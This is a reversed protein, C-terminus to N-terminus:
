AEAESEEDILDYEIVVGSEKLSMVFEDERGDAIQFEWIESGFPIFDDDEDMEEEVHVSDPQIQEVVEAEEVVGDPLNLLVQPSDSGDGQQNFRKKFTVQYRM